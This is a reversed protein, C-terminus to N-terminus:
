LAHPAVHDCRAERAVTEVVRQEQPQVASM